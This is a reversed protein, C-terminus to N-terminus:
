LIPLKDDANSFTEYGSDTVSIIDEVSIGGIEPISYIPFEVAFVMHERIISSVSPGITPVHEEVAIGVGHGLMRRTYNRFGGKRVERLGISYLTSSKIGPRVSKILAQQAQRLVSYIRSAEADSKGLIATRCIDSGYGDYIAGADIKVIDGKKIKRNTPPSSPIGSKEGTNIDIHHYEAGQNIINSKLIIALEKETTGVKANSMTIEIARETIQTAKKIKQKEEPSKIARLEDLIDGCELFVAKQLIKKLKQFTDYTMDREIGIKGSTCGIEKMIELVTQIPNLQYTKAETKLSKKLYIGAAYTRQDKISSHVQVTAMQSNPAILIPEDQPIVVFYPNFKYVVFAARNSAGYNVPVGSTYFVNEPSSIILADIGKNKM